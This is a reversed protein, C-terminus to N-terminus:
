KHITIIKELKNIINQRYKDDLTSQGIAVLYNCHVIKMNDNNLILGKNKKFWTDQVYMFQKDSLKELSNMLSINNLDKDWIDNEKIYITDRKIDTCHLPRTKPTLRKLGRNILNCIGNVFGNDLSFNLDDDTIYIKDILESFNIANKCEDNLYINLNFKNNIFKNNVTINKFNDQNNIIENYKQQQVNLMKKVDNNLLSIELNNDVNSHTCVKQHRSLSSIHSYNVGCNCIYNGSPPKGNSLHKQTILHKKTRLHKTYNSKKNSSYSCHTCEYLLHM